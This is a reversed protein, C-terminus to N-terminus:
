LEVSLCNVSDFCDSILSLVVVLKTIEDWGEAFFPELNLPVVLVTNRLFVGRLSLSSRGGDKATAIAGRLGGLVTCVAGRGAVARITLGLNATALVASLRLLRATISWAAGLSVTM